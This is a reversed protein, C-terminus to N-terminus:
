DKGFPRILSGLTPIPVGNLNTWRIPGESAEDAAEVNKQTVREDPSESATRKGRKMDIGAAELKPTWYPHTGKHIRYLEINGLVLVLVSTIPIKSINQYIRSSSM